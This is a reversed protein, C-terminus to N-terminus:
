LLSPPSIADACEDITEDLAFICAGPILRVSANLHCAFSFHTRSPARCARTYANKSKKM